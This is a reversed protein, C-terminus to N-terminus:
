GCCNWVCCLRILEDPPNVPPVVVIMVVAPPRGVGDEDGGIKVSDAALAPGGDDADPVITVGVAM